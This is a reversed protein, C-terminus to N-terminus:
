NRMRTNSLDLVKLTNKVFGNITPDADLMRAMRAIIFPREDDIVNPSLISLTGTNKSIKMKFKTPTVAPGDLTQSDPGGADSAHYM